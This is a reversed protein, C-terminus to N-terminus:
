RTVKDLAADLRTAIDEFADAQDRLVSAAAPWASALDRAKRARGKAFGSAWAVEDVIQRALDAQDPASM